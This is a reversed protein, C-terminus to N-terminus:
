WFGRAVFLVGTLALIVPAWIEVWQRMQIFRKSTTVVASLAAICASSTAVKRDAALLQELRDWLERITPPAAEVEPHAVSKALLHAVKGQVEFVRLDNSELDDVQSRLHARELQFEDFLELAKHAVGRLSQRRDSIELSLNFRSDNASKFETLLDDRQRLVQLVVGESQFQKLRRDSFCSVVYLIVLYFTIAASVLPASEPDAWKFKSELASTESPILVGFALLFTVVAGIMLAVQLKRSWQSLFEASLSEGIRALFLQFEEDSM